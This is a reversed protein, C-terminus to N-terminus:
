TNEIFLKQSIVIISMVKNKMENIKDFTSRVVSKDGLIYM